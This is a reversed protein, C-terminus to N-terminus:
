FSRILVELALLQTKSDVVQRRCLPHCVVGGAVLAYLLTHSWVKVRAEQHVDLLSYFLLSPCLPLTSLLLKRALM